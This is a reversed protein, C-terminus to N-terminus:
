PIVQDFDVEGMHWFVRVYHMVGEVEVHFIDGIEMIEPMNFILDSWLLDRGPGRDSLIWDSQRPYEKCDVVRCLMKKTEGCTVDDFIVIFETKSNQVPIQTEFWAALVLRASEETPEFSERRTEDWQTEPITKKLQLHDIEPILIGGTLLLITEVDSEDIPRCSVYFSRLGTHGAIELVDADEVLGEPVYVDTSIKQLKLWIRTNTNFGLSALRLFYGRSDEFGGKVLNAEVRLGKNTMAFEPNTKYFPLKLIQKSHVFESPSTAFLQQYQM